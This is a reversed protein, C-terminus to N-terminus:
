STLKLSIGTIRSRLKSHPHLLNGLQDSTLWSPELVLLDQAAAALYVVQGQLQLQQIVERLHDEGAQCYIFVFIKVFDCYNVNFLLRHLYLMKEHHVIM